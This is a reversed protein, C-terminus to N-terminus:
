KMIISIKEQDDPLTNSWFPFISVSANTIGPDNKFIAPVDDKNKSILLGKLTDAKPLWKLEIDGLLKFEISDMEKSIIQNRDIFNFSLSSLNPEIIEGKETKLIDPLLKDIVSSSLEDKKLLIATLTGKIDIDTAPTKSMYEQNLEYNYNVANPYLIYGEPVLANLKRFLKDKFQTSSSLILDKQNDDIFYVLGLAGGVLPSKINGYIKKYKDSDKFSNIQLLKPSGNYADGPLFSTMSTDIQGPIVKTNNLTFGPISITNDIKYSKGKEDSIFTGAALKVPKNSYENYFTVLGKSKDSVEKSNTLVVSRKDVDDVIMVEFSLNNRKSALFKQENLSFVQNKPTIIVKATFFITSLLYYIGILLSIIFIALLKKNISKNKYKLHPTESIRKNSLRSYSNKNLFDYKTSKDEVIAEKEKKLKKVSIDVHFDSPIAVKETILHSPKVIDFKASNTNRFDQLKNKNLKIDEIIKRTM